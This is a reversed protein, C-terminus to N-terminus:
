SVTEAVSTEARISIKTDVEWMRLPFGGVTPSEPSFIWLAAENSSLQDTLTTLLLQNRTSYHRASGMV